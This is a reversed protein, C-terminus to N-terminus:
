KLSVPVNVHFQRASQSGHDITVEPNMVPEIVTTADYAMPRRAPVGPLGRLLRQDERITIATLRQADSPIKPIPVIGSPCPPGACTVRQVAADSGFPDPPLSGGSDDPEAVRQGDGPGVNRPISHFQTAIRLRVSSASIKALMPM